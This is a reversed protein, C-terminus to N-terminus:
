CCGGNNNAPTPTPPKQNLNIVNASESSAAAATAARSKSLVLHDEAVKRFAEAVNKGTRSSTEFYAANVSNVYGEVVDPKIARRSPDGEVLDAKTGVIYLQCDKEYEQVQMVWFRVKEFSDANTLDFCVLAAKAKKYYVRVMSEFREGGATDWIALTVTVNGINIQKPVFAAGITNTSESLFRDHILREVLCTKGVDYMGLLVVKVANQQSGM